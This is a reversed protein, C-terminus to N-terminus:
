SKSRMPMIIHMYSPIDNRADSVVIKKPHVGIYGTKGLHQFADRLYRPNVEVVMMESECVTTFIVEAAGYSDKKGAKLEDDSVRIFPRKVLEFWGDSRIHLFCRDDQLWSKMLKRMNAGDIPVWVTGNMPGMDAIQASSTERTIPLRYEVGDDYTLHLEDGHPMMTVEGGVHQRVIYHLQQADVGFAAEDGQDIDTEYGRSLRFGDTISMTFIGLYIRIHAQKLNDRPNSKDFAAMAADMIRKLSKAEM